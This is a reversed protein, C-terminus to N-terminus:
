GRRGKHKRRKKKGKGSKKKGSKGKSGKGKGRKGKGPCRVPKRRKRVFCRQGKLKLEARGIRFGYNKIRKSGDKGTVKVRLRSKPTVFLKLGRFTVKARKSRTRRHKPKGGCRKCRYSVRQGRHVRLVVLKTVRLRRGRSAYGAFYVEFPGVTVRRKKRRKGRRKTKFTADQGYSVGTANLAVIRYHYRRNPKLGRIPLGIAVPDDGAGTEGAASSSGYAVTRGYEFFYRTTAGRARVTGTVNAGARFVKSVGGTAVVPPVDPIVRAIKGADYETVWLNQDPGMAIGNPHGGATLGAGFETIAGAPTVRGVQDVGFQAFWMNGDPGPALGAVHSGLTLGDRYTSIGGAPTIRGIADGRAENFWLNGDPGAAISDPYPCPSSAGASCDSSPLPGFVTVTGTPTMRSITAKDPSTYWLNGDPGQAIETYVGSPVKFETIAGSAPDIKGIRSNYTETFWMAGGPGATIDYIDPSGSLGASFETIAGAPTIRGVKHGARETFWVNGDPGAAIGNLKASPTLGLDYTTVAGAMTIRGITNTTRNTFWMNGDPGAAIDFPKSGEPLPYENISVAGAAGPYLAGLLLLLPLAALLLGGRRPPPPTSGRQTQTVNANM